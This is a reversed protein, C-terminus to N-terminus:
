NTITGPKVVLTINGNRSVWACNKVPDPNCTYYEEVKRGLADYKTVHEFIGTYQVEKPTVDAFLIYTGKSDMYLKGVFGYMEYNKSILTLGDKGKIFTIKENRRKQLCDNYNKKGFTCIKDIQL